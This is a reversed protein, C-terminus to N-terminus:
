AAPPLPPQPLDSSSLMDGMAVIVKRPGKFPSRGHAVLMNDVMLVDGSQWPFSIAMEDYLEGIRAIVEDEIPTGDGYLVNRPLDRLDFLELLAEREVPEMYGVHHLQLQNFFVWDGTRPHCAVASARQRTRLSNEGTWEYGIGLADLRHGLAVRDDTKFFDQWSVDLGEIFNRVYLLGREAFREIMQRPVRKFMERCDIIPTEGGQAAVVQCSFFQKMPWRHTHSSENHFLIAKDEPYPTSKYVKEGRDEKPLDGYDGVLQPCVSRAFREFREISTIDFGRFLISGHTHLRREIGALDAAAWEALDVGEHGPTVLLPAGPREDLSREQVLEIEAMNVARRRGAVFRGARSELRENMEERRRRHEDDTYMDIEAVPRASEALLRGLMAEYRAAMLAITSADFIDTRYTWEADIGSESEAMMLTIDFRAVENTVAVPEVDLWGGGSFKQRSHNNHLFLVQFLPSTGSERMHPFEAVVRDFPVDRHALADITTEAVHRVLESFGQEPSVRNRLVLQNVFLGILSELEPLPRNAASTGVCIDEGGHYRSLLLNFAALLVSFTTMRTHRCTDQLSAVIAQPLPRTVRAGHLDRRELRPRDLPLRLTECGSLRGKWYALTRAASPGELSAQEWYVYDSYQVDLPPLAPARREINARLSEMLESMLISSSAGDAIIHHMNMLLHCRDGAQRVLTVRLLPPQALDFVHNVEDEILREIQERQGAEDLASLDILPITLTLQPHFVQWPEGDCEVFAATLALHRRVVAQFSRQLVDVGFEGRMAMISPFNFLTSPGGAGDALWIRYQADSLPHGPLPPLAQPDLRGQELLSLLEARARAAGPTAQMEFSM